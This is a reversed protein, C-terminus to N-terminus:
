DPRLCNRGAAKAAYLQEDADAVLQRPKAHRERSHVALGISITVTLPGSGIEFPRDAIIRLLRRALAKADELATERLIVCFEAGGIRCLVDENRLTQCLRKGLERLV